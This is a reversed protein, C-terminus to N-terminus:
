FSFVQEKRYLHDYVAIVLMVPQFVRGNLGGYCYCGVFVALHQHDVEFAVMMQKGMAVAYLLM